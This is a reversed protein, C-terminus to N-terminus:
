HVGQNNLQAVMREAIQRAAMKRADVIAEEETSGLAAAQVDGIVALLESGVSSISVLQADVGASVRQLGSVDDTASRGINFTGFVFYDNGGMEAARQAPLWTINGDRECERELRARKYQGGSDSEMQTNATVRYGNTLFVEQVTREVSANARLARFKGPALQQCAIFVFAIRGRDQGKGKCRRLHNQLRTHNISAKVTMQLLRARSDVNERIVEYANVFNGINNELDPRLCRDFTDIKSQDTSVFTELAKMQAALTAKRLEKRNPKGRRIEVTAQGVAQTDQAHATDPVMSALFSALLVATVAIPGTTISM